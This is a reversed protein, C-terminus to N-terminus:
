KSSGTQGIIAPLTGGGPQNITSIINGNVDTGLNTVVGNSGILHISANYMYLDRFAFGTAGLDYAFNADPILSQTIVGGFQGTPGTPGIAGTAGNQFAITTHLHSLTSDRFAIYMTNSTAVSGWIEIRLTSSTSALTYNPVELSYIHIQPSGSNLITTASGSTGAAIQGILTTGNSQYEFVKYYFNATLGTNTCYSYLNLDWLGAPIVPSTFLTNSSTFSGLLVNSKLGAVTFVTQAGTDPTVVLSQSTPVTGTSGALDLFVTLGGSVGNQGANGQPGTPGQIGQIGQDGKLGAIYPLGSFPTTGDGIKVYQYSLAM